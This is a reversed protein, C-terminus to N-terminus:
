AATAARDPLPDARAKHRGTRLVVVVVVAVVSDARAARAAMVMLRVEREVVVAAPETGAM